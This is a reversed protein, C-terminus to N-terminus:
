DASFALAPNWGALAGDDGDRGGDAHGTRSHSAVRWLLRRGRRRRRPALILLVLAVTRVILRTMVTYGESAAAPAARSV